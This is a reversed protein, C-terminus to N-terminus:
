DIGKIKQIAESGKLVRGIGKTAMKPNKHLGKKTKLEFLTKAQEWDVDNDFYLIIYNHSELLEDTFEIEKEEDKFEKIEFGLFSIDYDLEILEELEININEIDYSGEKGIGNDALRFAKKQKENLDLEKVCPIEKLGLRKSAEMRGHGALIVNNEDIVVPVKFGFEKISKMIKKIQKEPHKKNNRAYPILKSTEVYEIKM